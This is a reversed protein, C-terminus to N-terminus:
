VKGRPMRFLVAKVKDSEITTKASIDLLFESVTSFEADMLLIQVDDLLSEAM